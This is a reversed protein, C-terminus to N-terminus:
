LSFSRQNIIDDFVIGARALVVKSTPSFFFCPEVVFTQTNTTCPEMQKELICFSIILFFSKLLDAVTKPSCSMVTVCTASWYSNCELASPLWSPARPSTQSYNWTDVNMVTFPDLTMNHTVSTNKITKQVVIPLIQCFSGYVVESTWYLFYM